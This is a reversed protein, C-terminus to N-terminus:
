TTRNVPQFGQAQRVPWRVKPRELIIALPYARVRGVGSADWDPPLAVGVVPNQSRRAGARGFM